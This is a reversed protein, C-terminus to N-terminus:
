YAHIMFGAVIAPSYGCRTPRQKLGMVEGGHGQYGMKSLVVQQVKDMQICTGALAIRRWQVVTLPRAM